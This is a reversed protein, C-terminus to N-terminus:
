RRSGGGGRGGDRVVEVRGGCARGPTVSRGCIWGSLRKVHDSGAGCGRDPHTPPATASRSSAWREPGKRCGGCSLRCRVRRLCRSNPLRILVNLFSSDAFTVGTVDLVLLRAGAAEGECAARVKQSAELDLEGSCGVVWM